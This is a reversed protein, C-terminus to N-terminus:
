KSVEPLHSASPTSQNLPTSEAMREAIGRSVTQADPQGPFLACKILMLISFKILLAAMLEARLRLLRIPQSASAKRSEISRAGEALGIRDAFKSQRYREDIGNGQTLCAANRHHRSTTYTPFRLVKPASIV